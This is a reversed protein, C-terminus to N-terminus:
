GNPPKGRSENVKELSTVFVVQDALEDVWRIGDDHQGCISNALFVALCRRAASVEVGAAAAWARVEEDEDMRRPPLAKWAALLRQERPSTLFALASKEM